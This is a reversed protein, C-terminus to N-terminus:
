NLCDMVVRIHDVSDKSFLVLDDASFMHSLLPGNHSLLIPKWRGSNVAVYIIHGLRKVCLVFFISLFLMEKVFVGQLIFSIWCKEM